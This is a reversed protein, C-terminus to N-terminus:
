KTKANPVEKLSHTIMDISYNTIPTNIVFKDDSTTYVTILKPDIDKIKEKIKDLFYLFQSYPFDFDNM